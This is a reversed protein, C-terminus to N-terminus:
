ADHEESEDKGRDQVNRNEVHYTEEQETRESREGRFLPERVASTEIAIM